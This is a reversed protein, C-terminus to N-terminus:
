KMTETPLGAPYEVVVTAVGGGPGLCTQLNFTKINWQLVFYM